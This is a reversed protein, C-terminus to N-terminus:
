GPLAEVVAGALGEADPSRAEAAVAFGAERIAASTTPGISVIKLKAQRLAARGPEETMELFSHFASPSLFTIADPLDGAKLARLFPEAKLSEEAVTDYIAVAEVHVGAAALLEELEPRAIASQPLLVRHEPGLRERELLELALAKANRGAAIIDPALGADALAQATRAGIAAIRARKWAAVPLRQAALLELFFRVAVQSTFVVHTFRAPERLGGLAPSDGPVRLHRTTPVLLVSAGLKELAASLEAADGESRTVVVSRDALPRAQSRGEEAPSM